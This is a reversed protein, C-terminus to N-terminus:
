PMFSWKRSHRTPGRMEEKRILAVGSSNALFWDGNCTPCVIGDYIFTRLIYPSSPATVVYKCKDANNSYLTGSDHFFVSDAPIMEASGDSRIVYVDKDYLEVILQSSDTCIPHLSNSQVIWVTDRIVKDPYDPVPTRDTKPKWNIRIVDTSGEDTYSFGRDDQWYARGHVFSGGTLKNKIDPMATGSLKGTLRDLTVMFPKGCRGMLGSQFAVGYGAVLLRNGEETIHTKCEAEEPLLTTWLINLDHDMCYVQKGDAVFLSDGSVIWNSHTGTLIGKNVAYSNYAEEQWETSNMMRRKIFSLISKLPEKVGATFPMSKKEGTRPNLRYLSDGMLYMDQGGRGKRMNCWPQHFKGSITNQWLMKGTSMDYATYDHGREKDKCIVVNSKTDMLLCEKKSSWVKEKKFNYFAPRRYNIIAGPKILIYGDNNIQLPEGETKRLQTMLVMEPLKYIFCTGENDKVVVYPLDKCLRFSKCGGYFSIFTGKLKAGGDCKVIPTEKIVTQALSATMTLILLYGLVFSKKIMKSTKIRIIAFTVFFTPHFLYTSFLQASAHIAPIGKGQLLHRHAQAAPQSASPLTGLYQRM